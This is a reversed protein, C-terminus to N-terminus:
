TGTFHFTRRAIAICIVGYVVLATIDPVVQSFSQDFIMLGNFGQMAWGNVTFKALNQM